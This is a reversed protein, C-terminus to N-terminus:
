SKVYVDIMNISSGMKTMYEDQEQKQKITDKYKHSLISHRLLNVSVPRQFIQSLRQNLKVSNLKNFATDFLLYNTPNIEIWKKLINKLKIPLSLRQEKYTKATKYNVFVLEKMKDSIYNSNEDVNKIKMETYDKLRRVPIHIGSLLALIIYSQIEQFEKKTLNEKEKKYLEKARKELKKYISKIEDQTPWNEEQRESKQQTSILENYSSIDSMMQERYAEEGTVIFLASLITKRRNPEYTSLFDLIKDTNKLNDEEVRETDFVKKHLSRLISAYTTVSSDTLTERKSKIFTKLESTNM